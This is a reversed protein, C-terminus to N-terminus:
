VSHFVIKNTTYTGKFACSESIKEAEADSITQAMSAQITACNHCLFMKHFRSRVPCFVCATEQILERKPPM